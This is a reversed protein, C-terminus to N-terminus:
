LSVKVYMEVIQAATTDYGLAKSCLLDFDDEITGM